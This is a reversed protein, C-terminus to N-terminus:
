KITLRQTGDVLMAGPINVGAKLDALIKRKDPSIVTKVAVYDDPLLSEDTIEVQQAPASLTISFLPCSIKNIGTAAMNMRLYDRMGDAKNQISKKKEQLRKIEADIAEIDSEINQTFLVVNVAKDQFDGEILQMTEAIAEAMSGTDDSDILKQVDAYQQSIEYLKM